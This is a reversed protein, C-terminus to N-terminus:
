SVRKLFGVLEKAIIEHVRSTPHLLDRWMEGGQKGIEEESFGYRKPEDLIANFLDFIVVQKRRAKCLSLKYRAFFHYVLLIKISAKTSTIIRSGNISLTQSRM